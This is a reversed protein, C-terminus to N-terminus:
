CPCGAQRALECIRAVVEEITLNSSDLVVADDAAKLPAIERHMDQWDRAEIDKEIDSLSHTEGRATLEEYRRQARARVSATLYVKLQADPLVVTGIDRGDMIVDNQAALQRQLSLLKERVFSRAAVASAMAGVEERRLFDTVDTDNLLVRQAGERYVLAISIEGCAALLAAEDDAGIGKQLFYYGMARYMAGTDVYLFGLRKALRKAITSKGAGAPGDIAIQFSM